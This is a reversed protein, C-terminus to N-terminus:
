TSALAQGIGLSAWLWTGVLMLKINPLRAAITEHIKDMLGQELQANFRYSHEKGADDKGTSAGDLSKLLALYEANIALMTSLNGGRDPHHELALTQYRSKVQEVTIAKEFYEGM